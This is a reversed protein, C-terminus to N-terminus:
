ILIDKDFAESKLFDFFQCDDLMSLEKQLKDLKEALDLKKVKRVTQIFVELDKTVIQRWLCLELIESIDFINM